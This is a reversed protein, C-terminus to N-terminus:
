EELNKEVCEFKMEYTEVNRPTSDTILNGM